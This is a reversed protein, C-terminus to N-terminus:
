EQPEGANANVGSKPDVGKSVVITVETGYKLEQGEEYGAGYGIVKGSPVEASYTDEGRTPVFGQATVAASAETITSGKISPLARMEAGKSVVVVVVTGKKMVESGTDPSQSIIYGEAVSDDFREESVIVKYYKSNEADKKVEDFKKGVLAPVNVKESDPLLSSSVESSVLSSEDEVASPSSSAAGGLLGDQGYLLFIVTGFLILAIVCSLIGWVFNPLGGTRKSPKPANRKQAPTPRPPAAVEEQVMTVTPAASLEARLREFTPTRKEPSVQLGNALATVVHPPIVRLVSTPIMLRGDSRRKLADQPLIGTLAYFLSATFGYVDTTEELSLGLTYQEIAACGSFLEPKLDTDMQRVPRISFGRLKMKGSRLIVLNDPSIGFHKVGAAHMSSLSSLVPMFLPRAVNWEVKGGSREVFERLTINDAWESIVYATNNEEFIDYVPLLASLERMRAVSRFYALFAQRYETFSIECGTIVEVPVGGPSRAAMNEPLFERIYVATDAEVDYGIYGIGEGNQDLKKGVAYRQQLLTKVPLCNAPLVASPDFGCYPCPGEGVKDRICGLCLHDVNSM